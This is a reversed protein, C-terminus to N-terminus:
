TTFHAALFAEMEPWAVGLFTFENAYAIPRVAAILHDALGADRPGGATAIAFARIVRLPRMEAGTMSVECELWQEDLLRAAKAPDGARCDIVARTLVLMAPFSPRSPLSRRQEAAAYWKEATAIDGLLAHVLATDVGSTGFLLNTALSHGYRRDNDVFLKRSDDLRGLRLLTWALNHRSVAAVVPQKTIRAWESFTERASELKGRALDALARSCASNFEQYHRRVKLTSWTLFVFYFTGVGFGLPPSLMATYATFGLMAAITAITRVTAANPSRTAVARPEQVKVLSSDSM